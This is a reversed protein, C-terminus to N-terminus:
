NKVIKEMEERLMQVRRLYILRDKLVSEPDVGRRLEEYVSCEMCHQNNELM